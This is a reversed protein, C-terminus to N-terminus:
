LSKETILNVIEKESEIEGKAPYTKILKNFESLYKEAKETDKEYILTYAYMLRQKTINYPLTAKIYQKLKKSYLNNIKEKNCEGMIEYFLLECEIENKYLEIINPAKNLLSEYCNKAKEFEHRDHYYSGEILKITTILPNNFDADEPLYFWEISLDKPRVGTYILGNAYLQIYFAKRALKDKGLSILNYGDNAVGGIKLPIGNILFESFGILSSITFIVEIFKPLTFAFSIILFVISIIVNTLIGGLNYLFYPCNYEKEEPPMMLCQGATGPISFKKIKLKDNEKILTLSGIRFSVFKYGSLLGFILHGAEHVITHFMFAILAIIFLIIMVIISEKINEELQTSAFGIYFGIALFPIMYIIFTYIKFLSEKFNNKKM